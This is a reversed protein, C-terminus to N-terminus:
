RPVKRYSYSYNKSIPEWNGLYKAVFILCVYIGWMYTSVHTYMVETVECM